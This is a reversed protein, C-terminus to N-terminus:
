VVDFTGLDITLSAEGAPGGRRDLDVDRATEGRYVVADNLYLVCAVDPRREGPSDLSLASVGACVAEARGDPGLPSEGLLDDRLLDKDVFQVRYGIGTLPRGDKTFRAILKFLAAM